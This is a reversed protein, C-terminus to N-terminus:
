ITLIVFLQVLLGNGNGLLNTLSQLLLKLRGIHRCSLWWLSRWFFYWTTYTWHWFDWSSWHHFDGFWFNSLHRRPFLIRNEVFLKFPLFFSNEQIMSFLKWFSNKNLLLKQKRNEFVQKQSYLSFVIKKYKQFWFM